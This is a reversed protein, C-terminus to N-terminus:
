CARPEGGCGGGGGPLAGGRGIRGRGVDVGGGGGPGPAYMSMGLFVDNTGGVAASVDGVEASCSCSRAVAAANLALVFFLLLEALTDSSEAAILAAAADAANM